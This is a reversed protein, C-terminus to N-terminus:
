QKAAAALLYRHWHDRDSTIQLPKLALLRVLPLILMLLATMM